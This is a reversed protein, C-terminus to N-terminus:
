VLQRVHWICHPLQQQQQRKGSAQEGKAAMNGFITIFRVLVLNFHAGIARQMATLALRCSLEASM